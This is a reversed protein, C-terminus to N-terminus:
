KLRYNKGGDIEIYDDMQLQMLVSIVRSLPLGTAACIEDPHLSEEGFLNYVATCDPDLGQVSQKKVTRTKRKEGPKEVTIPTDPINGLDLREPYIVEYAALIDRAGSVAKAGDRILANVGNYATTLISGPIAYIDRSQEAARKATILSGSKEGAEVVLIGHSMGSIIRNREPFTYRTAPKMPPYETVVAGSRSIERRLAENEMLYDTGLGCGLVCVTKGGAILAGEHASSDIGLAGGSVVVAGAYALDSSIKRAIAISEHCPKRTGVVGIIVKGRLCSIDGDVYLALPMDVLKRLGAPYIRDDPTVIQWGYKTCTALIREADAMKTEGLKEFQRKTFIGASMRDAESAEYLKKPDPFATLIEDNRTGTGLALSLWVWYKTNNMTEAGM